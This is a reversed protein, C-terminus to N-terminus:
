GTGGRGIGGCGGLGSGIGGKRGWGCLGCRGGLGGLGGIGGCEENGSPKGRRECALMPTTKERCLVVAICLSGKINEGTISRM